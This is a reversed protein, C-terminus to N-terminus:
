AHMLSRFRDASAALRALIPLREIGGDGANKDAELAEDEPLPVVSCRCGFDWPPYITRWVPDIARAVFGDLVAHAPRVRLDGVTWYQWFPMAALMHPEQMQELRGASYAKQLAIQFATDLSFANLQEAGTESGLEDVAARFDSSGGGKALTAALEQQVRGILRQDATGALTFADRRYQATLGDFVERTVPTLGRVYEAADDGGVDFAFGATAGYPHLSALLEADSQADDQDAFRLSRAGASLPLPRGLKARAHRLIQLRGMLDVAAMHRALTAALRDLVANDRVVGLHVSSAM